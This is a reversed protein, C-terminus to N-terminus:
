NSSSVDKFQSSKGSIQPLVVTRSYSFSVEPQRRREFVGKNLSGKPSLPPHHSRACLVLLTQHSPFWWVSTNPIFLSIIKGSPFRVQWTWPRITDRVFFRSPLWKLQCSWLDRNESTWTYAVTSLKSCYSCIYDGSTKTKTKTKSTYLQIEKIFFNITVYYLWWTDTVRQFIHPNGKCM